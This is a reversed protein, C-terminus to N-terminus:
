YKGSEFYYSNLSSLDIAFIFHFTFCNENEFTRPILFSIVFIDPTLYRNDPLPQTPCSFLNLHFYYYFGNRNEMILAM